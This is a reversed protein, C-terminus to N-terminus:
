GADNGGTKLEPWKFEVVDGDRRSSVGGTEDLARFIVAAEEVRKILEPNGAFPTGSKIGRAVLECVYAYDHPLFRPKRKM